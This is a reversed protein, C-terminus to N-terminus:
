CRFNGVGFLVANVRTIILPPIRSEFLENSGGPEYRRFFDLRTCGFIDRTCMVLMALVMMM